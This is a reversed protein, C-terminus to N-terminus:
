QLMAELPARKGRLLRALSFSPRVRNSLLPIDALVEIGLKQEIDAARQVGSKLLAVGFVALAALVGAAVAGLAFQMRKPGVPKEPPLASEMLILRDGKLGAEVQHRALAEARRAVAANYLTQANEHDRELSNLAAEVGPTAAISATLEADGSQLRERELAIAHLREDIDALQLDLPSAAEGTPGISAGADLEAQVAAIQRDLAAITPSDAAFLMLQNTRTRKLEALQEQAPTQVPAAEVTGTQRYFEIYGARRNQLSSQESELVLLRDRLNMQLTRRFVMTEPLADLNETKFDRLATDLDAVKTALREVEEDFFTLAAAASALRSDLDRKLITHILENAVRAALDPDNARFSVTFGLAEQSGSFTFPEVRIRDRLNQAMTAPTPTDDPPYIQQRKALDVLADHTLLQQQIVQLRALAGVSDPVPALKAPIQPLEVLITGSAEYVSPMTVVYSVGLVAVAGGTITMLPLWRVLMHLYFRLDAGTM